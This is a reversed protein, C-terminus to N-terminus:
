NTRNIRRYWDAIARGIAYPQTEQVYHLGNGIYVTEINKARTTWYEASEPSSMAGPTAYLYLWPLTTEELFQNYRTIVEHTESPTEGIPMEKPWQIMRKRAEDTQFPQAYVGLAEKALPRDIFNSLIGDEKMWINDEGALLELNAPDRSMRFFNGLAEPMTELSKAPLIPAHLAEMTALAKVNDTNDMAYHFGISSGWDHVVLTVNKLGLAEIFGVVYRYHDGYSYDIDPADSKGFGILDPAILRGKGELHPMVNRWLYSSTPQGHLFIIPDGEGEDVYAMKSGLVDVFKHEYPFESPVDLPPLKYGDYSQTDQAGETTNNTDTM